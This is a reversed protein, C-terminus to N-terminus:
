LRRGDSAWSLRRLTGINCVDDLLGVKRRKSAIQSKSPRREYCRGSLGRKWPRSQVVKTVRREACADGPHAPVGLRQVCDHVVDLLDGIQRQAASCERTVMGTHADDTEPLHEEDGEDHSMVANDDQRDEGCALGPECEFLRQSLCELGELLWVSVKRKTACWGSARLM